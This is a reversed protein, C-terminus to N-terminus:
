ANELTDSFAKSRPFSRIYLQQYFTAIQLVRRGTLLTFYHM